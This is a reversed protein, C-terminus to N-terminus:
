VRCRERSGRSLGSIAGDPDVPSGIFHIARDWRDPRAMLHLNHFLAICFPRNTEVCNRPPASATQSKTCKAKLALKM